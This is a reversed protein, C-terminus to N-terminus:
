MGCVGNLFTLCGDFCNMIGDELRDEALFDVEIRFCHVLGNELELVVGLLDELLSGGLVDEPELSFCLGRRRSAGMWVSGRSAAPRGDLPSM